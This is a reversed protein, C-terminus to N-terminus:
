FVPVWQRDWGSQINWGSILRVMFRGFGYDDKQQPLPDQFDDPNEIAKLYQALEPRMRIREDSELWQSLQASDSELIYLQSLWGRAKKPHGLRHELYSLSYLCVAYDRLDQETLARTRERKALPVVSWARWKWELNALWERFGRGNTMWRLDSLRCGAWLLYRFLFPRVEVARELVRRASELNGQNLDRLGAEVGESFEDIDRGTSDLLRVGGVSYWGSQPYVSPGNLNLRGATSRMSFVQKMQDQLNDFGIQDVPVYLSWVKAFTLETVGDLHLTAPPIGTGRRAWDEYILQTTRVDDYVFYTNVLRGRFMELRIAAVNVVCLAALVVAWVQEGRWRNWGTKKIWVEALRWTVACFIWAFVPSWYVFYRSPIRIPFSSVVHRHLLMYGVCAGYWTLLLALEPRQRIHWRVFLWIMGVTLALMPLNIMPPVVYYPRTSDMALATQVPELFSSLTSSLPVLANYPFFVERHDRLALALLVVSVIAWLLGRPMGRRVLVRLGCLGAALFFWLVGVKFFPSLPFKFIAENLVLDGVVSLGLLLYLPYILFLPIWRDFRSLREQPSGPSLLLHTMLVLPFIITSRQLAGLVGMGLTVGLLLTRRPHGKKFMEETALYLSLLTLLTAVALLHQLSTPWFYAHFQAFLTLYVLASFLSVQRRLGMQCGVAFVLAAIIGHVLLNAWILAPYSWGLFSHMFWLTVKLVPQEFLIPGPSLMFATGQLLSKGAMWRSLSPLMWWLDTEPTASRVVPWLLGLFLGAVALTIGRYFWHIKM